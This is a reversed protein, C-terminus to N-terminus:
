FTRFDETGDSYKLGSPYHTWPYHPEEVHVFDFTQGDKSLTSLFRGVDAEGDIGSEGADLRDRVWQRARGRVVSDQAAGGFGQFSQSIDPLDKGMSSPLLLHASVAKLDTTLSSLADGMSEGSEEREGCVDEPCLQTIPEIAQTKWDKGLLTF